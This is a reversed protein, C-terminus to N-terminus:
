RATRGDLAHVGELPEAKFCGHLLRDVGDDFLVLTQRLLAGRLTYSHDQLVALGQMDPALVEAIHHDAVVLLVQQIEVETCRKGVAVVRRVLRQPALAKGRPRIRRVQRGIRLLIGGEAAAVAPVGGVDRFVRESVADRTEAVARRADQAPLSRGDLPHRAQKRLVAVGVRQLDRQRILGHPQLHPQVVGRPVIKVDQRAAGHEDVAAGRRECQAARIRGADVQRLPLIVHHVKRALPRALAAHLAARHVAAHFRLYQVGRAAARPRHVREHHDRGRVRRLLLPRDPAQVEKVAAIVARHHLHVAAVAQAHLLADARQIKRPLQCRPRGEARRLADDRVRLLTEARERPLIVAQVARVQHLAFEGVARARHEDVVPFRRIKVKVLFLEHLHCAARLVHAHLQEHQVVAPESVSVAGLGREAVPRHVPTLQGGADLPQGVPQRLKGHLQPQPELRLHDAGIRLQVARVGVPGHAHRLALRHLLAPLEHKVQRARLHAVM